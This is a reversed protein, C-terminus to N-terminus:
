ADEPSALIAKIEDLLEEIQFPKYLVAAAGIAVAAAEVAEPRKASVLIIPPVRQKLHALHRVMQVGDMAPLQLDLLMLDPSCDHRMSGHAGIGALLNIAEVGSDARATEYGEMELVTTLMEGVAADDEVVLIWTRAPQESQSMM